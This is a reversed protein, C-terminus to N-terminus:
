SREAKIIVDKFRSDMGIKRLNPCCYISIHEFLPWPGRWINVLGPLYHLTLKKLSPLAVSDSNITEEEVIIQEIGRCDEIVLEELNCLYHIMSSRLIYELKPCGYLSLIRLWAFSGEPLIGEWIGTLNWLHHISLTELLPFIADTDEDVEDVRVVTEIKPCESIICFKLGNIHSVGFSSLSEIDIHNDLYFANSRALIQLVEEPKKEGNVFRLCRGLQNYDFELYDPVQSSISKVDRGVVFKFETLLKKKWPESERLFEQVHKVDPFHFCLFRLKKLKSIETKVYKVDEHWREDGPYLVISLTDLIGLQSIIGSSILHRPLRAYESDDISGYFSVELRSLFALEGIKDPLEKIKTGRLDLVELCVLSGVESPLMFLRKCDCIILMLLNRIKFLTKPLSKIRTESLNLVQLSTMCDFFSPPIVRLSRNRQLFLILLEPCNPKEPLTCLENDSLFMMKAQKWEETPPPETLGAGVRSLFQNGKPICLRSSELINLSRSSSSSGANLLEVSGSYASLLNQIGESRLLFQSDKPMSSLIGLALDRILDHMKISDGGETVQLLSAHVLVDVIYHGRKHADAQAGTILGEQICYEIFKYINVEQDEPFLACHLFCSKVDNDSLQDFSFKLLQLLDEIQCERSTKPLSFKKSADKWVSVDNKGGLARGTVIILLPLGGCGKVITEAFSKIDSLPISTSVQEYFLERAEKWSISKVEVVKFLNMDHCADIKRSAIVIKCGNELSPGPIGVAELDIQEWVDDLLLLFKKGKLVKLLKEAVQYDTESYERCLSLQRLVENQVKRTSWYRSVTVLIVLDFVHKTNPFNILAKLVTTKGIGGTGIVAIQTTRVNNIHSFIKRVTTKISKKAYLVPERLFQDEVPIENKITLHSSRVPEVAVLNSKGLEIGAKAALKVSQRASANLGRKMKGEGETQSPVIESELKHISPMREREEMSVIQIESEHAPPASIQPPFPVVDEEVIESSSAPSYGSSLSTDSAKVRERHVEFHGSVASTPEDKSGSTSTMMVDEPALSTTDVAQARESQVEFDDLMVKFDVSMASSSEDESGSTSAMLVAKPALSTTDAGQVRENQVEFHGSIASTLEDKSESTSTMGMSESATLGLGKEHLGTSCPFPNILEAVEDKKPEDKKKNDDAKKPKEKKAEEKKKEPEKAPGVSVIETFCLKRLKKVISVPDFNEGIVTLKNNNMDVAISDIGPLGCVRKMVKQKMKDDLPQLKFVVKMM